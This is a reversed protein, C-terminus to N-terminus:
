SVYEILDPDISVTCFVLKDPQTTGKADYDSIFGEFVEGVGHYYGGALLHPTEETSDLLLAECYSLDHMKIFDVIANNEKLVKVLKKWEVENTISVPLNYRECVDNAMRKAIELTRVGKAITTATVFKGDGIPILYRKNWNLVPIGELVEHKMIFKKEM